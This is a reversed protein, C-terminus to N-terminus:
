LRVSAFLLPYQCYDKTLLNEHRFVFFGFEIPIFILASILVAIFIALGGGRPTPYTHIVKPHKHKKPDDIIGIKFAFKIVLITVFFAIMASTIAPILSLNLLNEM